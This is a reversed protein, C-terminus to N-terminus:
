PAGDGFDRLGYRTFPGLFMYEHLGYGTCAGKPGELDFRSCADVLGIMRDADKEVDLTLGQVVLEGQYMGHRWDADFGYGTGVGVHLETLPTVRVKMEGEPAGPFRLLSSRIRRTGPILEHEHAPSGLWEPERAPDAWIRVAEDMLRQGDDHENVMYLISFDDFQMPAYNWLGQLPLEGHRIGPPEAEGM